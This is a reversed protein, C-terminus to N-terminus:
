EEDFLDKISCGLIKALTQLTSLRCNIIHHDRSRQITKDAVGSLEVMKRVTLGKKGMLIKVNSTIM